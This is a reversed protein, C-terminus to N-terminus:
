LDLRGPATEESCSPALFCDLVRVLNPHPDWRWDKGERSKAAEREPLVWADPKEAITAGWMEGDVGRIEGGIGAARAEQLFRLIRLERHIQLRGAGPEPWWM